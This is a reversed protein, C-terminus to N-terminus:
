WHIPRLTLTTSIRWAAYDMFTIVMSLCSTALNKPTQILLNISLIFGTFYLEKIWWHWSDKTVMLIATEMLSLMPAVLLWWTKITMMRSSFSKMIINIVMICHSFLLMVPQFMMIPPNHIPTWPPHNFSILESTLFLNIAMVIRLFYNYLIVVSMKSLGIM